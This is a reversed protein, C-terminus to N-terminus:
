FIYFFFLDPTDAFSCTRVLPTSSLHALSGCGDDASTLYPKNIWLTQIWECCDSRLPSIFDHKLFTNKLTIVRVGGGVWAYMIGSVPHSWPWRHVVISFFWKACLDIVQLVSVEPRSSSIFRARENVESLLWPPTALSRVSRWVGVNQDSSMLDAEECLTILM